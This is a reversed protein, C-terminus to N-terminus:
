RGVHGKQSVTANDFNTGDTTNAGVLVTAPGKKLQGDAPVTVTTTIVFTQLFGTCAINDEFGTTIVGGSQQQVVNGVLSLTDSSDCVITGTIIATTDDVLTVKTDVSIFNINAKLTATGVGILAAACACAALNRLRM